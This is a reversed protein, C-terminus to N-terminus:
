RGTYVGAATGIKLLQRATENAQGILQEGYERDVGARRWAELDRLLQEGLVRVEVLTVLDENATTEGWLAQGIHRAVLAAVSSLLTIGGLVYRLAPSQEALPTLFTAGGVLTLLHALLQLQQSRTARKRLLPHWQRALRVVKNLGDEALRARMRLEAEGTGGLTMGDRPFATKYRERVAPAYRTLLTLLEGVPASPRFEEHAVLSLPM